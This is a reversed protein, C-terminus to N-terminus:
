LSLERRGVPVPANKCLSYLWMEKVPCGTLAELAAAYWNLQLGYTEALEGPNEVRDTKYDVIVWGGEERFACDIVGQVLMNEEERVLNFAWERRVEPSRLMRRGIESRFFREADEAPIVGAEEETLVGADAMERKMRELEDKLGEGADRIRGLDALSLFRHIVTGRWAGRHEENPMMFAPYRGAAYKRMARSFREPIRKDEPTEEEDEGPVPATEAQKLLATVSKKVMKEPIIDEPEEPHEETWLEEVYPASGISELWEELSHIDEANDVTEQQITDFCTINWPKSAQACGTYQKQADMLAPLIWDMCDEASLVRYEGPPLKWGTREETVGALFMRQQARTMAVYLLRIKEAREEHEKKWAFIQDAATRRALRHKPQKYFLTIGLEADLAVRPEAHKRFPKDLGLCFVVPFQLGKSKHMTMIRVVNDGDALPSAAKQDSGGSQDSVWSLFDRLTYVGANEADEAQRCLMRLNRRATNGAPKGGAAAYVQSDALLEYMFASLVSVSEKERWKRIRDRAERCRVGTETDQEACDAFAQWFPVGKGQNALRVHALEEESFWFPANKLVSILPIDQLPNDVLQLLLIFERIEDLEYFEAGGDFFVPVNRRALADALKKGEGSVVPMLIVADRYDLREAKLEAMRMAIYDALQGIRDQEADPAILDVQVPVNGEAPLGPILEEAATYDMEATEERMIDRFVTNVTQLIEPRSRFNTQLALSAGDTEPREYYRKRNLFLMPDARRFRYISQKVDGVMFLSNQEAALAQIVADQVASVDQCEDVFIYRWRARVSERCAENKLIGYAKHELDNFDLVRMRAKNRDFDACVRLMIKKLGQLSERMNAFEREAKEPDPIILEGIEAAAAKLKDRKEAYREKWDLEVRNLNRPTSMRAFPRNLQEATVPEGDAWLQKVHFLQEDSKWLERFSEIHEPEQFMDYMQRLVVYASGLKERLMKSLTRFWPHNQDMALPVNDCADALWQEPEPLSMMFTYVASAIDQAENRSFRKRFERYDPDDENLLSGCASAFADQFLKRAMGASCIRFLPDVGAAQFEQRILHQCFSHITSIDMMDLKELARRISRDATEEMLRKRIKEKMEAAAANTFTVILFAEPDAGERLMRIVREIMVATKGSGAAASCVINHYESYIAELQQGTWQPM